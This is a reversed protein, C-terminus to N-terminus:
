IRKKVRIERFYHIKPIWILIKDVKEQRKLKCLKSLLITFNRAMKRSHHTNAIHPNAGDASNWLHIYCTIAKFWIIYRFNTNSPHLHAKIRFPNFHIRFPNPNSESQIRFIVFFWIEIQLLVRETATKLKDQRRRSEKLM